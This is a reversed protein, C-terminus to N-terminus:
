NRSLEQLSKPASSHYGQVFNCHYSNLIQEQRENKVGEAIVNINSNHAIDIISAVLVRDEEDSDIDRIFDRDIKLADVPLQQHNREANVFIASEKQGRETSTNKSATTSKNASCLSSTSTVSSSLSPLSLRM